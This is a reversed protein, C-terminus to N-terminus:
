KGYMPLYYLSSLNLDSYVMTYNIIRWKLLYIIDTIVICTPQGHTRISDAQGRQQEATNKGLSMRSLCNENSRSIEDSPQKREKKSSLIWSEEPKQQQQWDLAGSQPYNTEEKQISKLSEETEPTRHNSQSLSM